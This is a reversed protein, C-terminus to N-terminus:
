IRLVAVSAVTLGMRQRPPPRPARLSSRRARSAALLGTAPMLLLAALLVAVALGGLVALCIAWGSMGGHDRQGGCHDDPCHGGTAAAAMATVDPPAAGTATAPPADAMVASSGHPDLHVGTHGLTHMTALGFVTCFLLIWRVARGVSAAQTITM